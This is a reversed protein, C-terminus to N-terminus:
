LHSSILSRWDETEESNDVIQLVVHPRIAFTSYKSEYWVVVKYSCRLVYGTVTSLIVRVILTDGSWKCGSVSHVLWMDAQKIIWLVNLLRVAITYQGSYNLLSTCYSYIVWQRYCILKNLDHLYLKRELSVTNWQFQQQKAWCREAAASLLHVYVLHQRGCIETSQHYYSITNFYEM